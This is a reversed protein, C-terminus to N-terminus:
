KEKSKWELIKKTWRNDLLRVVHGVWRQKTRMIREIIDM